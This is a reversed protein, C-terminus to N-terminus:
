APLPDTEGAPVGIGFVNLILAVGTYHGTFAVLEVLGAPGLLREAAARVADAAFGSHAVSEVFAFVVREDDREFPPAAGTRIAEIVEASVGERAAIPAHAFWEYQANWRRAIVLVALERLRQPVSCEYRLFRGLEEFREALAPSRLLALYPGRVGGRPGAAIRDWIARQEPTLDDPAASTM